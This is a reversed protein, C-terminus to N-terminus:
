DDCKNPKMVMWNENSLITNDTRRKLVNELCPNHTTNWVYISGTFSCYRNVQFFFRLLALTCFWENMWLRQQTFFFVFDSKAISLRRCAWCHSQFQFNSQQMLALSERVFFSVLLLDEIHQRHPTCSLRASQVWRRESHPRNSSVTTRLAPHWWM